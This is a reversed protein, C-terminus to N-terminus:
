ALGTLRSAVTGSFGSADLSYLTEFYRHYTSSIAETSRFLSLSNKRINVPDGTASAGVIGEITLDLANAVQPVAVFPTQLNVATFISPGSLGTFIPYYGGNGVVVNQFFRDCEAKELALPRKEYPKPSIGKSLQLGTLHLSEGVDLTGIEIFPAVLSAGLSAGPYSLSESSFAFQYRAYSSTIGDTYFDFAGGTTAVGDSVFAHYNTIKAYTSGSGWVYAVGVKLELSSADTKAFFSFNMDTDSLNTHEPIVSYLRAKDGSQLDSQTLVLEYNPESPMSPLASSVPSRSVGIQRGTNYTDFFYSDAIYGAKITGNLEENSYTSGFPYQLRSNSNFTIGKNLGGDMGEYTQGFVDLRSWLDFGSNLIKNRGSVEGIVSFDNLEGTEVSYYVPQSQYSTISYTLGLGQYNQFLGQRKGDVSGMYIFLPKAVTAKALFFAEPDFLNGSSYTVGGTAALYFLYGATLGVVADYGTAGQGVDPIDFVGQRVIVAYNVPNVTIGVSACVGIIDDDASGKLTAGGVFLSGGIAFSGVTVGSPFSDVFVKIGSLGSAPLSEYVYGFVTKGNGVISVPEFQSFISTTYSAGQVPVQLIYDDSTIKEIIGVVEADKYGDFPDASWTAKKYQGLSNYTLVTGPKFSATPEAFVGGDATAKIEVVDRNLWSHHLVGKERTGPISFKGAQTRFSGDGATGSSINGIKVESNSFLEIADIDTIGERKIKLSGVSDGTVSQYM